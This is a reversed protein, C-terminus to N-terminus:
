YAHRTPPAPQTAPADDNGGRDPSGKDDGGDRNGKGRGRGPDDDHGQSHSGRDNGRGNGRDVPVPVYIPTPVPGLQPPPPPPTTVIVTTPAPPLDPPMTIAVPPPPNEAEGLDMIRQTGTYAPQAAALAAKLRNAQLVYDQEGALIQSRQAKLDTVRQLANNANTNAIDRQATLNATDITRQGTNYQATQQLQANMFNMDSVYREYDAQAQTISADISALQDNTAKYTADLRAMHDQITNKNKNLRDLQESTVWTAGWRHLGGKPGQALNAEARTEAPEYNRLLTKYAMNNKEGPYTNIAEAINDLLLRNDPKIQLARTYIVFSEGYIYQQWSVVALNNEALVSSPDAAGLSAFFTRAQTLNNLRFAALGALSLADPNQEDRALATKAADISEKLRGTKYLDLAPRAAETWQKLKVEIQARPMWEGRFKVAGNTVLLQYVGLKDKAEATRPSDPFKEIFKQLLAVVANLDDANKLLPTIRTWEAEAAQAPTVTSNLTVKLVDSPNVTLSKGDDTRIVMVDGQRSMTGSIKRGDQLQIIDAIAPSVAAALVLAVCAPVPRRIM